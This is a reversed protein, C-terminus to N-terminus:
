VERQKHPTLNNQSTPKHSLQTLIIIVYIAAFGLGALSAALAGTKIGGNYLFPPALSWMLSWVAAIFMFAAPLGTNGLTVPSEPRPPRLEAKKMIDYCTDQPDFIDAAYIVQTNPSDIELQRKRTELVVEIFPKNGGNTLFETVFKDAFVTRNNNYIAEGLNGVFVASANERLFGSIFSNDWDDPVEASHCCDALVVRAFSKANIHAGRANKATYLNDYSKFVNINVNDHKGIMGHCAIHLFDDSTISSDILDVFMEPPIRSTMHLSDSLKYSTRGRAERQLINEATNENLDDSTIFRLRPTAKRTDTNEQIDNGTYVFAYTDPITRILPLTLWTGGGTKPIDEWRANALRPDKIKLILGEAKLSDKKKNILKHFNEPVYKHLVSGDAIVGPGFIDPPNLVEAGTFV